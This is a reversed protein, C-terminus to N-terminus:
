FCSNEIKQLRLTKKFFNYRIPDNCQDLKIVYIQNQGLQSEWHAWEVRQNTQLKENLHQYVWIERKDLKNFASDIDHCSRILPYGASKIKNLLDNFNEVDYMATMKNKEVETLTKYPRNYNWGYGWRYTFNTKASPVVSVSKHYLYAVSKYGKDEICSRFTNDALTKEAKSGGAWYSLDHDICCELWAQSNATLPIGDPSASCGDSTFPRLTPAQPDNFLSKAKAGVLYGSLASLKFTPNIKNISECNKSDTFEHLQHGSNPNRKPPSAVESRIPKQQCASIFVFLSLASIKIKLHIM